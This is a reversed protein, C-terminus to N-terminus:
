NIYPKAFRAKYAGNKKLMGNWYFNSIGIKALIKYILISTKSLREPKALESVIQTDFVSERLLKDGLGSFLKRKKKTMSEPMIRIGESGGMIVTGIYGTGLEGALWVLYKELCRSHIAEPFGSHVIFGLKKEKLAGSFPQLKEIFAKVIGPMCDFYLPFVFLIIDSDQAIKAQNEHNEPKNLYVVETTVDPFDCSNELLWKAIIASNSNKGRPSGNFVTLKM